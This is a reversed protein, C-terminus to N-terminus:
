ATESSDLPALAKSRAPSSANSKSIKSKINGPKSPSSTARRKRREFLLKPMLLVLAV